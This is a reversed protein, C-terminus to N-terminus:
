GAARCKNLVPSGVVEGGGICVFTVESGKDLEIAVEQPVDHLSVGLLDGGELHVVAQDTLDSDISRVVGSIKIIKDKYAANARMENDKYAAALEGATITVEPTGQEAAVQVKEDKAQEDAAVKAAGATGLVAIGTCMALPLGVVALLIWVWVPTKKKAEGM